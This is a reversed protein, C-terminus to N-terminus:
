QKSTGPTQGVRTPTWRHQDTTRHPHNLKGWALPPGGIVKVPHHQGIRNAGRSHPDVTSSLVSAVSCGTQGVRTPTWRYSPSEGDRLRRKGWALPPGGHKHSHKASSESNAGRSHPDVGQRRRRDPEPPTQGVRTPTWGMAAREDVIPRRKGWALPPGGPNSDLYHSPRDNAGRSHPDM